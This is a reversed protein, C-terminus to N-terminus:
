NHVDSILRLHVTHANSTDPTPLPHWVQCPVLLAQSIPPEVRIHVLRTQHCVRLSFQVYSMNVDLKLATPSITMPLAGTGM